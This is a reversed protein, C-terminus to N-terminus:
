HLIDAKAEDMTAIQCKSELRYGYGSELIEKAVNEEQLIDQPVDGMGQNFTDTHAQEPGGM